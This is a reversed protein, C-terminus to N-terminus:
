SQRGIRVHERGAIALCAACTVQAPFLGPPCDEVPATGCLAEGPGRTLDGFSFRTIPVPQDAIAHYTERCIRGHLDRGAAQYGVRATLAARASTTSM